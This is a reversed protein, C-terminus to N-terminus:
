CSRMLDVRLCCWIRWPRLDKPPWVPASRVVPLLLPAVFLVYCELIWQLQSVRPALVSPFAPLAINVVRSDVFAMSLGLLTPWSRPDVIALPILEHLLESSRRIAFHGALAAWSKQEVTHDARGDRWCGAARRAQTASRANIPSRAWTKTLTVPITLVTLPRTGSRL